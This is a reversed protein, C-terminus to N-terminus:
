NLIYEEYKFNKMLLLFWCEDITNVPVYLNWQGSVKIMTSRYVKAVYQYNIDLKLGKDESKAYYLRAGKGGGGSTFVFLGHLLDGDSIVDIHWLEMGSPAKKVKITEEVPNEFELNTSRIRKLQMQKNSQEEVFYMVFQNTDFVIAPSIYTQATKQLIVRENGWDLLNTSEKRLITITRNGHDIDCFRYYVYMIGDKEIIEGDSFHSEGNGEYEALAKNNEVNSFRIGDKSVLVYQSEDRESGFPYGSVTIVVANNYKESAMLGDPHTLQGVENTDTCIIPILNSGKVLKKLSATSKRKYYMKAFPHNRYRGYFLKAYNIHLLESITYKM